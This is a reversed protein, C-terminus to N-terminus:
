NMTFITEMMVFVPIWCTLEMYKFYNSSTKQALKRCLM